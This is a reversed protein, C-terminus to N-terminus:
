LTLDISSGGPAIAATRGTERGKAKAAVSYDGLFGRIVARGSSDTRAEADTWWEKLVLDM